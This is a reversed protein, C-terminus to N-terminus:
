PIVLTNRQYITDLFVNVYLLISSCTKKLVLDINVFVLQTFM